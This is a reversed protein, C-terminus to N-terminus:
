RRRGGGAGDVGMGMGMMMMMTARERNNEMEGERSRRVEHNAMNRQQGGVVRLGGFLRRAPTQEGLNDIGRARSWRRPGDVPATAHGLVLSPQISNGYLNPPTSPQSSSSSSVRDNYIRLSPNRNHPLISHNIHHHFSPNRPLPDTYRPGQHSPTRPPPTSPQLLSAVSPPYPLLFPPVDNPTTPNPSSLNLAHTFVRAPSPSNPSANQSMHRPTASFPPPLPFRRPSPTPAQPSPFLSYSTQSPLFDHRRPLNIPQPSSSTTDSLSFNALSANSERRHGQESQEQVETGKRYTSHEECEDEVAALEISSRLVNELSRCLEPYTYFQRPNHRVLREPRHLPISLSDSEASDSPHFVSQPIVQRYLSSSPAARSIHLPSRALVGSGNRLQDLRYLSLQPSGSYGNPESTILPKGVVRSTEHHRVLTYLSVPNTIKHNPRNIKTRFSEITHQERGSIVDVPGDLVLRRPIESRDRPVDELGCRPRGFRRICALLKHHRSGNALRESSGPISSTEEITAEVGQVEQLVDLCPLHGRQSDAGHFHGSLENSPQDDDSHEQTSGYQSGEYGELIHPDEQSTIARQTAQVHSMSALHEPSVSAELQTEIGAQVSDWPERSNRPVLEPSIISDIKSKPATMTPLSYSTLLRQPVLSQIGAPLEPPSSGPSNRAPSNSGSSRSGPPRSKPITKAYRDLPMYQRSTHWQLDRHELNIQTAPLRLM